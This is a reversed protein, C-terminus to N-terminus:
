AALDAIAVRPHRLDLEVADRVSRDLPGRVLQGGGVANDHQSRVRDEDLAREPIVSPQDHVRPVRDRVTRGDVLNLKPLAGPGRPRTCRRWTPRARAPRPARPRARRYSTRSGARAARRARPLPR